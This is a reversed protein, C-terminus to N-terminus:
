PRNFGSVTAQTAGLIIEPVAPGEVTCDVAEIYGSTNLRGGVLNAADKGTRGGYADGSM